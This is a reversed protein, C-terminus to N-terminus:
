KVNVEIDESFIAITLDYIDSSYQIDFLIAFYQITVFCVCKPQLQLYLKAPM